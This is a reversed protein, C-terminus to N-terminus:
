KVITGFRSFILELDDAQTVPNLKCVFLVNEDPKIDAHPIDGVMELIKANARAEQRESNIKESELEEATKKTDAVVEEHIALFKSNLVQSPPSPSREPYKLWDPDDFPDAVVTTHTIRTQM